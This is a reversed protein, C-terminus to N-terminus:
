FTLLTPSPSVTYLSARLQVQPYTTTRLEVSTWALRWPLAEVDELYKLLELYTGTMEVEVGHRYFQGAPPKSASPPQAGAPAAPQALSTGPLVRLALVRLNRNRGLVDQLLRVLQESSLQEADRRQALRREAIAVGAELKAMRARKAAHPDQSAERASKVLEDNISKLQGQDLKVRELYGRQERLLPQLATAYVLAVVLGAALVFALGRERLTLEDLKAAWQRWFAM